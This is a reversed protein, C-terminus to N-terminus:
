VAKAEQKGEESNSAADSSNRTEAHNFPPSPGKGPGLLYAPHFFNLTYLALTIMAGDLVNFLVQTSIIRGNWGNSLEIERYVARIFLCTTSFVLAGSIISIKRSMAPSPPPPIDEAALSKGKIPWDQTYRVYFESACIAYVTITLLQFSIGGLMINGGPTPDMDNGSAIAAKGGGVAQIVLSIVDCTCFLITYWKPSLRSYQPGLHRIITGFIVFNAALLPTPGLITCTIQMEFPSSLTPSFSSWLRAAWGLIELLGCLGVTPLLWWMRYYSAQGVHIITSISFLVIFTIAVGESPIYHYPTRHFEHGRSLLEVTELALAAM